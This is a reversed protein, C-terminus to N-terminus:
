SRRPRRCGPTATSSSTPTNAVTLPAETDLLKMDMTGQTTQIRVMTQAQAALCAGLFAAALLARPLLRHLFTRNM